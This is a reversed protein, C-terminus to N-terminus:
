VRGPIPLIQTVEVANDSIIEIHDFVRFYQFIKFTVEKAVAPPEGM